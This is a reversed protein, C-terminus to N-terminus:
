FCSTATTAYLGTPACRKWDAFASSSIAAAWAASGRCIASAKRIRRLDTKAIGL